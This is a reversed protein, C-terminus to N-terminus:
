KDIEIQEVFLWGDNELYTKYSHGPKETYSKYKAGYQFFLGESATGLYLLVIIDENSNKLCILYDKENRSIIDYNEDRMTPVAVDAYREFLEISDFEDTFYSYKGNTFKYKKGFVDNELSYIQIKPIEDNITINGFYFQKCASNTYEELSVSEVFEFNRFKKLFYHPNSILENFGKEDTIQFKIYPVLKKYYGIHGVLCKDKESGTYILSYEIRKNVSGSIYTLWYRYDPLEDPRNYNERYLDIIETRPIEIDDFTGKESDYMVIIYEDDGYEDKGIFFDESIGDYNLDISAIPTGFDIPSSVITIDSENSTDIESSYSTSDNEPTADSLTLYMEIDSSSNININSFGNDDKAACGSLIICIVSLYFIYKKM